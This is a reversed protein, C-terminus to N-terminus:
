QSQNAGDAEWVVRGGLITLVPKIAKLFEPKVSIPDRDLLVMDALKGPRITGKVAQTGESYAGALTYMRLASEVPVNHFSSPRSRGGQGMLHLVKGTRTAGTVASYIAPWPNPDIVPADSGFAVTVGSRFLGGAPYLWELLSPDVEERYSDGNWFIFGPQTVAMAGSRRVQALLAPPCEACHEIRDRPMTRPSGEVVGGKLPPAKPPDKACLATSPNKQLARAAAAVAEMEIAHVAVPFGAHRVKLVMLRLTEIDPQLAGTTTTMMIKAHGLRLWQDGDGWRRGDAIFENLHSVGAMMTVRCRLQGAAQLARFTEWREPNNGPGADQVSTIGYSLLRQDLKAVGDEFETEPRLRGLREGLFSSMELLLGSPEGTVHDRDIVGDAPDPTNRDIGALRLGASNLVSAHGSRHDLRVPHYPAAADLDRRNPHRRERLALHDYGSGRLWLGRATEESRRRIIRQLEYISSVAEPSCDLRQHSAATALLHCHADVFSPLLTMGHCDITRTGPGALGALDSRRGVAVITGERTAVAEARPQDPELTLVLANLLLIDPPGTPLPSQQADVNAAVM